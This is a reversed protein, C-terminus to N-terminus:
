ETTLFREAQFADWRPPCFCNDTALQRNGSSYRGIGSYQDASCAASPSLKEAWLEADLSTRWYGNCFQVTDSSAWSLATSIQHLQGPDFRHGGPQLGPARGASSCGRSSCGATPARGFPQM